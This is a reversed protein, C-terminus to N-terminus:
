LERLKMWRDDRAEEHCDCLAQNRNRGCVPCIGRCDQRCLRQMPLLLLIQERLVDALELGMGEYFGAQADIAELGVEEDESLSSAPLYCLEFDTDIPFDVPELCRDCDAEMRVRFRGRVRIEMTAASLEATGEVELPGAQRIQEGFFEIPGPSFTESFRVRGREMEQTSLFM